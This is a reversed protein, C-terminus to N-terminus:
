ETEEKIFIGTLTSDGCWWCTEPRGGLAIVPSDDFKLAYCPRCVPKM